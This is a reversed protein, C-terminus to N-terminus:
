YSTYRIIIFIFFYIAGPGSSCSRQWARASRMGLVSACLLIHLLAAATADEGMPATVPGAATLANAHWQVAAAALRVVTYM